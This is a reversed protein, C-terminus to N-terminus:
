RGLAKEISSFCARYTANSWSTDFPATEWGSESGFFGSPKTEAEFVYNLKVTGGKVLASVRRRYRWKENLLAETAVDLGAKTTYMLPETQIFGSSKDSLQIAYGNGAFVGLVASFLTSDPLGYSRTQIQNQEEPSLNAMTVATACALFLLAGYLLFVSVWRRANDKETV